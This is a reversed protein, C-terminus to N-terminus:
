KPIIRGLWESISNLALPSLTEELEGYEGTNCATCTQFLHNLGPLEKVEYNKSKSKKLAAKMGPLNQGSIVQIDKEGNIALVPCKIKQLWPAPDFQLFYRFWPTQFELVLSRVYQDRKKKTEVGLSQQISSDTQAAWDDAIASASAFATKMDATALVATAMKRFLTRLGDMAAESTGATRAIAVNQEVLLDMCKVGPGAMLVLFAIDKRAAAVMPAIMGGESHGILGIWKKNVENRTLLYDVHTSIDKAFDESTAKSFNGTSKGVGRDDARLVLIGNRTLHDALVMFFKHGLIEEDRNQPGSGTILVVAPFPGKGAPISLTAGFRLTSDANPYIVEETSYPFPPLPTQPRKRLGPNGKKKLTLPLDVGQTFIGEMTSDNVLKGTYSAKVETIEFRIENQNIIADSCPLGFASQDPSDAKVKGDKAIHFVIKLDVGAQLTGEWTGTFKENQGSVSLSFLSLVTLFFLKNKM